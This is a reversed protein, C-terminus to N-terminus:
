RKREGPATGERSDAAVSNPQDKQSRWYQLVLVPSQQPRESHPLRRRERRSRYRGSIFRNRAKSEERLQIGHRQAVAASGGATAISCVGLLPAVAISNGAPFTSGRSGIENNYCGALAYPRGHFRRPADASIHADRSVAVRLTSQLCKQCRRSGVDSALCTNRM